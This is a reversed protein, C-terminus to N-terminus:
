EDFLQRLTDWREDTKDQVCGCDTENLDCGCMSCLGKCDNRCLPKFPKEMIIAERIRNSIDYDEATKPLIVFDEDGTEEYENVELFQIIFQLGSSIQKEFLELCRSCEAEVMTSVKGECIVEDGSKVVSLEVKIPEPFKYSEIDLGLDVASVSFNLESGGAKIQRFEVKMSFSILVTSIFTDLCNEGNYADKHRLGPSQACDRIGIKGKNIKSGTKTIYPKRM